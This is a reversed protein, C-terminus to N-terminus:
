SHKFYILRLKIITLHVVHKGAERLGGIGPPAALLTKETVDCWYDEQYIMEDGWRM